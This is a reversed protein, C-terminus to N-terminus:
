PSRLWTALLPPYTVRFSPVEGEDEVEDEFEQLRILHFILFCTSFNFVLCLFLPLHLTGARDSRPPRGGRGRGADGGGGGGVEEAAYRSTPARGSKTKKLGQLLSQPSAKGSSM